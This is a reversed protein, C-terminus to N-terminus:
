TIHLKNKKTQLKKNPIDGKFQCNLGRNASHTTQVSGGEWFHKEKILLYRM